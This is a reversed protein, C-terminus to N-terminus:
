VGDEESPKVRKPATLKMGFYDALKDATVLTLGRQGNAFRNLPAYPIKAAKAIRYLSLGSKEIAESLQKTLSM